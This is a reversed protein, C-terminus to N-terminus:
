VETVRSNKELQVSIISQRQMVAQHNGLTHQIMVPPLPQGALRSEGRPTSPPCVTEDVDVPQICSHGSTNSDVSVRPQAPSLPPDLIPPPPVAQCLNQLLLRTQPQSMNPWTVSDGEVEDDDLSDDDDDDDDNAEIVVSVTPPPADAYVFPSIRHRVSAASVPRLVVVAPEVFESKVMDTSTGEAVLPAAAELTAATVSTSSPVAISRRGKRAVRPSTNDVEKFPVKAWSPRRRLGSPESTQVSDASIGLTPESPTPSPSSLSLAASQENTMALTITAATTANSSGEVILDMAMPTSTGMSTAPTVEAPEIHIVPGQDPPVQGTHAAIAERSAQAASMDALVVAPSSSAAPQTLRTL